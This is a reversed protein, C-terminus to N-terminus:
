NFYGRFTSIRQQLKYDHYSSCVLKGLPHKKRLSKRPRVTKQTKRRQGINRFLTPDYLVVNVSNVINLLPVLHPPLM